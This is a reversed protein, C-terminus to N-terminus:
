FTKYNDTNCKDNDYCTICECLKSYKKHCSNCKSMVVVKEILREKLKNQKQAIDGVRVKRVLIGYERTQRKLLVGNYHSMIRLIAIAIPEIIFSVAVRNIM